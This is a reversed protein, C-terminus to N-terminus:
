LRAKIDDINAQTADHQGSAHRIADAHHVLEAAQENLMEVVESMPAPDEDEGIAELAAAIRELANAAQALIFAEGQNITRVPRADSTRPNPKTSM